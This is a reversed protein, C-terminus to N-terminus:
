HSEGVCGIRFSKYSLLEVLYLCLNWVNSLGFWSKLKEQLKLVLRIMVLLIGEKRWRDATRAARAVMADDDIAEASVM